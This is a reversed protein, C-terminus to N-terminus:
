RDPTSGRVFDRHHQAQSILDTWRGRSCEEARHALEEQWGGLDWAAQSAVDHPDSRVVELWTNRSTCRGGHQRQVEREFRFLSM